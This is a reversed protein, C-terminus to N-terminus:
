NVTSKKSNIKKELKGKQTPLNQVSKKIGEPSIGLDIAIAICPLLNSIESLNELNTQAIFSVKGYVFDFTLGTSKREINQAYINSTKSKISFSSIKAPINETLDNFYQSDANVYATGNQPLAELLEKKGKIINQQSGFLDIHQNGIGTLIGYKPNVFNTVANIEGITYAGIEAIFIETEPKVNEIISIAVGLDTNFNEKTKASKFKSSLITYLFEKTTTKGFSGTIGIVEPKTKNLIEVARNIKRKKFINSFVSLIFLSYPISLIFVPLALFIFYKNSFYSLIICIVSVGLINVFLIYNRIGKAPFFPSKRSFVSLVGTEKLSSRIRDFRYEKTQFFYIFKLTLFFIIILNIVGITFFAFLGM